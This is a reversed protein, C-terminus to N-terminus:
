ESLKAAAPVTFAILTEIPWCTVCPSASAVTSEDDAWVASVSAWSLRVAASSRRLWSSCPPVLEEPPPAAEEPPPDVAATVIGGEDVVVVVTGPDGELGPVEAGVVGVGVVGVGVVGVGVVGGDVVVVVLAGLGAVMAESLSDTAEACAATWDAWCDRSLVVSTAGALPVTVAILPEIPWLTLAPLLETVEPVAALEDPDVPEPAVDAPPAAAEGAPADEPAEEAAAEDDELANMVRVSREWSSMVQSM